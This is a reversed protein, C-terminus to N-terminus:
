HNCTLSREYVLTETGDPNLRPRVEIFGNKELVRQSAHNDPHVTAMVEHIDFTAPVVKLLAGVAESAFGHNWATPLLAYKLEAIAQGGPHVLGICGIFRQPEIRSALNFMGYGRNQYNRATVELWKRCLPESIPRGDDVYRMAKPNSYLGLINSLDSADWRYCRIRDSQFIEEVSM